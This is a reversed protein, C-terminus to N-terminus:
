AINPKFSGSIKVCFGFPGVPMGLAGTPAWIDFILQTNFIKTFLYFLGCDGQQPLCRATQMSVLLSGRTMLMLISSYYRTDTHLNEPWTDLSWKGQVLGHGRQSQIWHLRCEVGLRDAPRPFLPQHWCQPDPWLTEQPHVYLMENKFKKNKQFFSAAYRTLAWNLSTNVM